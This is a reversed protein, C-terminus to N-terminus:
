NTSEASRRSLRGQAPGDGGGTVDCLRDVPSSSTLSVAFNPNAKKTAKM